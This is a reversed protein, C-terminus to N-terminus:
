LQERRKLSMELSVHYGRVVSSAVRFEDFFTGAFFKM